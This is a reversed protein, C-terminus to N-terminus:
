GLVQARFKAVPKVRYHRAIWIVPWLDTRASKQGLWKFDFIFISVERAFWYFKLWIRVHRVVSIATIPSLSSTSLPLISGPRDTFAIVKM